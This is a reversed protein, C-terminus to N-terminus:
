VDMQSGTQAHVLGVEPWSHFPSLSFASARLGTRRSLEKAEDCNRSAPAKSVAELLPLLVVCAEREEPSHRSRMPLDPEQRRATGGAASPEGSSRQM